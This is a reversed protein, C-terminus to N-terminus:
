SGMTEAYLRLWNGGAIKEVEAESFGKRRLADVILPYQSSSQFWEPWAARKTNGHGGAGYDIGRTWRGMRMWDLDAQTNKRGLDSGIGVHDIGIENVTEAVMDVWTEITMDSGGSIPPYIACGVVGGKEALAKLLEKSKNRRHPYIWAPNAHTIAVPRESVEITDFSTREGVHSLDILIGTRNMELVAERGFRSLGSDNSEYCSSGIFNQNNYTLQVVRVGLDAFLEIYAIRGEFIDSNQFGLIIAARGSAVAADIEARNRAIAVLDANKRVLERWDGLKQLAEGADDWFGCTVTVCGVGGDLLEQFVERDWKGAQLADVVVAM